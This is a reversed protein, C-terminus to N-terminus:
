TIDINEKIYQLMQKLLSVNIISFLSHIKLTADHLTPKNTNQQNKSYIESAVRTINTFARLTSFLIPEMEITKKDYRLETNM